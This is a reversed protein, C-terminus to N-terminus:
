ARAEAPAKKNCFQLFIDLKKLCHTRVCGKKKLKTAHHPKFAEFNSQIIANLHNFSGYITHKM